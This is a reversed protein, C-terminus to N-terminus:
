WCGTTTTGGSVAQQGLSNITYTGCADSAQVTGAIPTATASFSPPNTQPNPITVAITYTATGTLPATTSIGLTTLSTYSNNISYYKEEQAALNLLATKASSRNSKQIFTYYQPVAVKILIGIIVIVVMLEILTFGKQKNALHQNVSM